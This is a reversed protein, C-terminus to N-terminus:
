LRRRISLKKKVKYFHDTVTKDVFYVFTGRIGRTLLVYYANLVYERLEEYSESQGDFGIPIANKTKLKILM